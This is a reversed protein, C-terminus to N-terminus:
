VLGSQRDVTRQSVASLAKYLHVVAAPSVELKNYLLKKLRNLEEDVLQQRAQILCDCLGEVSLRNVM